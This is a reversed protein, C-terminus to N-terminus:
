RQEQATQRPIPSQRDVGVFLERMVAVTMWLWRRADVIQTLRGRERTVAKHVAVLHWAAERIPEHRRVVDRQM